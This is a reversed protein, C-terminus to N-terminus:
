PLTAPALAAAPPPDCTLALLFEELDSKEDSTLYLPQIQAAATGVEYVSHSGGADYHAIVDTLTTFAGDHMYPGTLSVNRLSPTRYGGVLSEDLTLGVYAMRSMDAPDDSWMSDRRFTSHQLKDIGDRAGWPICNKPGAHTSTMPACDCVGGAPCDSEQPIAPGVQPVDVNHFKNDSFLPTGHCDNCAAKGVFLKAGRKAADSIETSSGGNGSALDGAWRDFDSPGTVLTAEYAAIAKGFNVLVRTVLAQDAAAMCDFADGFPETAVGAQCGAVKGPKGQLPFRPWCSAEGTTSMATRCAAPCAGGVPLCQGAMAGDAAVLPSWKSSPGDFPLPYDTFLTAYPMAYLDSIVWATHLRNGNTTLGNENDAVAQAWLSDLRGNWTQVKYFASNFTPLSNSFGWGAGISVNGASADVSGHGVDHCSVCAVGANQGKPVRGYPMPRNLADLMTSPGAFRTDHFLANGLAIASADGAYKNSPDAPPASPLNSLALLQAKETQTWECSSDACLLDDVRGCAFAWLSTVSVVGVIARKNKM